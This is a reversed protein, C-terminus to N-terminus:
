NHDGGEMRRAREWEADSLNLLESLTLDDYDDGGAGALTLAERAGATIGFLRFYLAIQAASDRMMQFAPSKRVAGSTDKHFLGGGQLKRFALENVAMLRCLIVFAHRDVPKFTGLEILLPRLDDAFRQALAALERDDSVITVPQDPEAPVAPLVAARPRSKKKLTGRLQKAKASVRRGPM